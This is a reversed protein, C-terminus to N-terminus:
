KVEFTQKTFIFQFSKNDNILKSRNNFSLSTLSTDIPPKPESFLFGCINIHIEM